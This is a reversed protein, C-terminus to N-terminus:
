RVIFNGAQIPVGFIRDPPAGAGQGNDEIARILTRQGINGPFRNDLVIVGGITARNPATMVITDVRIIWQWGRLQPGGFASYQNCFTAVGHVGTADQWANVSVTYVQGAPPSLQVLGQGQVVHLPLVQATGTKSTVCATVIALGCLAIYMKTKM